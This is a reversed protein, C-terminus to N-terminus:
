GQMQALALGGVPQEKGIIQKQSVYSEKKPQNQKFFEWTKRVSYLLRPAKCGVKKERKGESPILNQHGEWKEGKYLCKERIIDQMNLEMKVEAEQSVWVLMCPVFGFSNQGVRRLVM